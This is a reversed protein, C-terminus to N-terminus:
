LIRRLFEEVKEIEIGIKLWYLQAPAVIRAAGECLNMADKETTVLVEAKGALKKLEEPRYRHHDRFTQRFVVEIGLEELTRWFSRPSGLGCFAAVRGFKAASVDVARGTEVNVWHRPVVRSRFVPAQANYRRILREIGAIDQGPEVRTV